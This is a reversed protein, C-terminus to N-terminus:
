YGLLIFTYWLINNNDQCKWMVLDSQPLGTWSHRVQCGIIIYTPIYDRSVIEVVHFNHIFGKFHYNYWGASVHIMIISIRIFNYIRGLVDRRPVKSVHMINRNILEWPSVYMRIEYYLLIICKFTYNYCYPNLVLLM